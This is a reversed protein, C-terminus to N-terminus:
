MIFYYKSTPAAIIEVVAPIYNSATASITINQAALTSIGTASGYTGATGSASSVSNRYSLNTTNTTPPTFQTRHGYFAAVYSSGDTDNLTLAPLTITTGSSLGTTVSSAGIPLSAQGRYVQLELHTASTWTGSTESSSAAVKYALAYANSSGGGGTGSSVTTWGSPITPASTSGTRYAWMLLLDGTAHTPMTTIATTGSVASSIYTIAM